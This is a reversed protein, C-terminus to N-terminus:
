GPNGRTKMFDILFAESAQFKADSLRGFVGLRM